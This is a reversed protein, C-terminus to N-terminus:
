KCGPQKDQEVIMFEVRRNAERGAKTKNPTIPATEGFGQSELREAEIGADTLFKMVSAARQESLKLNKADNGSDDTHGEVRLKRIHKATRMVEAIQLLLEHSASQIVASGSKFQVKGPFEIKDCTVRIETVPPPPPPLEGAEPCGDEDEKGNLNEPQEPCQDEDDTIGDGDFDTEPCGDEDGLGDTDEPDNPCKDVADPIGDRDRDDEPCGDEDRDGDKDEPETPCSDYGDQIGDGDNDQDPCGDADDVGDPDEAASPCRDNVDLIGDGDNDQDPCGDEDLYGDKDEAETPCGDEKDPVGDGDADLGAPRWAAGAFVRFSPVGVGSLIGVGGGLLFAFDGQTLEAGARGEIPNEDLQDTFQTAGTVEGVVRLLSTAQVGAGVGWTLEPGVETSLLQSKPRYVGGANAAATFIGLKLEGILHGGATLGDDGINSGEATATGLPIGVWAAAGLTFGDSGSGVLRGKVSIRPDGLGFASGGRIDLFPQAAGPTAARFSEGDTMVVPVTLGLQIRNILTLTAMPTFTLQYKVLAVDSDQVDCDTDDNPDCEADFLVFPRHAYDIFLGVSPTLHGGVGAGDVMFYNGAGPAPAFRNTSFEDTAIEQAATREVAVSLSVVALTTAVWSYNLRM